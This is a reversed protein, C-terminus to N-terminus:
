RKEIGRNIINILEEHRKILEDTKNNILFPLEFGKLASLIVNSTLFIDNLEFESNEVGNKLIKNILLIEENNYKQRIKVIFDIYSLHENKLADYYNSLKSVTVMRVKAYNMLKEKATKSTEIAKLLESKLTQFEKEVVLEFLDEKSKFHYYISGKAKHAMRAIEDVTTKHFGFRSFINTAVNLIRDRTEEIKTM